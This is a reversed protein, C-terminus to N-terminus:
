KRNMREKLKLNIFLKTDNNMERIANLLERHSVKEFLQDDTEFEDSVAGFVGYNENKDIYLETTAISEHGLMRRVQNIDRTKKWIHQAGAKRISHFVIRRQKPDINLYKRIEPLMRQVTSSSINFVKNANEQKIELLINYVTRSIRRQMDKKGKAITKVIVENNKIIFDDWTVNLCEDERMCTDLSFLLFARKIKGTRNKTGMYTAVKKVEQSTLGDWSKNIVKTHKIDLFSIDEILRKKDDKASKRNHLHKYCGKIAALAVSVSSTSLGLDHLMYYKYDEFEETEFLLDEKKLHEIKKNKTQIFFTRIHREYNKATNKSEEEHDRLFRMIQNYVETNFGDNMRRKPKDKAQKFDAFNTQM